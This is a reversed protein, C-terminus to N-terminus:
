KGGFYTHDLKFEVFHVNYGSRKQLIEIINEM